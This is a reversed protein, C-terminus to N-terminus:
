FNTLMNIQTLPRGLRKLEWLSGDALTSFYIKGGPKVVRKMESLPIALDDCWQLALSSFAFDFSNDLFPISEADGQTCLVESCRGATKELMEPSLDLATMRAGLNALREVCYGTGCGVDLGSQGTLGSYGAILRDAVERQFAASNDYTEAARGFARAIALKNGPRMLNQNEVKLIASM